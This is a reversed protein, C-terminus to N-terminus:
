RRGQYSNLRDMFALSDPDTQKKIEDLGKRIESNKEKIHDIGKEDGIRYMMRRYKEPSIKHEVLADAAKEQPSNINFASTGYIKMAAPNSAHNLEHEYLFQVESHPRGVIFKPNIHIEKTLIGTIPNKKQSLHPSANINSKNGYQDTYKYDDVFTKARSNKDLNVQMESKGYGPVKSQYAMSNVSDARDKKAAIDKMKKRARWEEAGRIIRYGAQGSRDNNYRKMRKEYRRNHDSVIEEFDSPSNAHMLKKRLGFEEFNSDTSSELMERCLMYADFNVSGTLEINRNSEM